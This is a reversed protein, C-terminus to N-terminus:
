SEEESQINKLHSTIHKITTSNELHWSLLTLTDHSIKM